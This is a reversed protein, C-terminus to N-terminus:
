KTLKYGLNQLFEKNFKSLKKQHRTTQHRTTQYKCNELYASTHQQQQQQTLPPSLSRFTPQNALVNKNYIIM